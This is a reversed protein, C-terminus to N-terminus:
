KSVSETTNDSTSKEHILKDIIQLQQSESEKGKSLVEIQQQLIKTKEIDLQKSEYIFYLLLIYVIFKEILQLREKTLWKVATTPEM